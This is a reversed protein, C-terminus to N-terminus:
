QTHKRLKKYKWYIKIGSSYISPAFRLIILKGKMKPPIIANKMFPMMRHKLEGMLEQRISDNSSNPYKIILDATELLKRAIMYNIPQEYEYYEKKTDLALYARFTNIKRQSIGKKHSIGSINYRYNYKKKFIKIVKKCRSYLQPVIVVDEEAVNEPIKLQDFLEASYLHSWLTHNEILYKKVADKGSFEEFFTESEQVTTHNFNVTIGDDTFRRALIEVCDANHEKLAKYMVEYMDPELYDDADVFGIYDGTSISLGVNRAEAPGNKEAYYIYRVRNDKQLIDKCIKSTGDTSGNDIIIVELAKFTQCIVSNVCEEIYKECNYAPIIVSIKEM